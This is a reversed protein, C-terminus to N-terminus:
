IGNANEGVVGSEEIVRVDVDDVHAKCIILMRLPDDLGEFGALMDQALLRESTIRSLSAM